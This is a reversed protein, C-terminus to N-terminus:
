VKFFSFSFVVSASNSILVLLVNKSIIEFAHIVFIFLDQAAFFATQLPLM